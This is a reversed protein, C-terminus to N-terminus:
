AQAWLLSRLAPHLSDSVVSRSIQDSRLLTQLFTESPWSGAALQSCSSVSSPELILRHDKGLLATNYPLIPISFFHCCQSVHLVLLIQHTIRNCLSHYLFLFIEPHSRFAMPSTLPFQTDYHCLFYLLIPWYHWIRSFLQDLDFLMFFFFLISYCWPKETTLFGGALAPSVLAIGPRLLNWM